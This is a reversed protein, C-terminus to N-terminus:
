PRPCRGIAKHRGKANKVEHIVGSSLIIDFVQTRFLLARIDSLLFVATRDISKGYQLSLKDLDVGVTEMDGAYFDKLRRSARGWRCAAELIIPTEIRELKERM